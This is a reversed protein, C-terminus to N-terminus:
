AQKYAQAPALAAVRRWIHAGNSENCCPMVWLGRPVRGDGDVAAHM